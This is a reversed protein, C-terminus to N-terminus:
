TVLVLMTQLHNRISVQMSLIDSIKLNSYILPWLATDEQILWWMIQDVFNCFNLVFFLAIMVNWTPRLMKLWVAPIMRLETSQNRKAIGMWRRGWHHDGVNLIVLPTAWTKMMIVDNSSINEVDLEVVSNAM